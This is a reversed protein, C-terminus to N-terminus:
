SNFIIQILKAVPLLFMDSYECVADVQDLKSGMGQAIDLDMADDLTNGKVKKTSSAEIIPPSSAHRKQISKKSASM